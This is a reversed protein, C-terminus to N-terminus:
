EARAAVAPPVSAARLAPWLSALQGLALVALVGVGLYQPSLRDSAFHTALWLNAGLALAIGLAAGSASVILNELQVYRLIDVRRAGLARRMGVQRRRQAVWSSTLAIIGMATVILLAGCVVGLALGLSRDSRYQEARTETFTQAENLVRARSFAYLRREAVPLLSAPLSPRTRVVYAMFPSVWQYPMFLSLDSGLGPDNDSALAAWPAQAREVIGVIRTPSAASLYITRGLAEGHPFLRMALAQTVIAVPPDIRDSGFRFERVEDPRFERGAVLRVGLLRMAQPTTAYAAVNASPQRQGVRLAVDTSYGYGRLPFSQMAAADIVGPISRLVALDARVRASLDADGGIFQNTMTFIDAEDIGSPRRMHALRQQVISLANTLIGVTLAIQLAILLAGFKRQGLARVIPLVEL